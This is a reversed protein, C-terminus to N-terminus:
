RAPSAKVAHAGASRKGGPVAAAGGLPPGSPQGPAVVPGLSPGPGAGRSVAYGAGGMLVCAVATLAIITGRRRRRGRPTTQEYHRPASLDILIEADNM